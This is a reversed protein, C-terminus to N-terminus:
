LTVVTRKAPTYFDVIELNVAGALLLVTEQNLDNGTHPKRWVEFRDTKTVPDYFLRTEIQGEWSQANVVLGTTKHGRATPQTKRASRSITGYFHSM